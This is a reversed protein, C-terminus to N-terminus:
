ISEPPAELQTLKFRAGIPKKKTSAIRSSVFHCFERIEDPTASCRVVEVGYFDHLIISKRGLFSSASASHLTEYSILRPVRSGHYPMFSVGEETAMVTM